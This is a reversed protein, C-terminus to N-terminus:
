PAEAKLSAGQPVLGDEVFRWIAVALKRALAIVGIKRSRGSGAGFTSRYWQSLASEPQYRLWCWALEVLLRRAFRNGAKSIGQDHKVAGSAYPSPALGLFSALCKRNAFQRHFVESVLLVASLRGIGKLTAIRHVKDVNPLGLTGDKLGDELQRDLDRIHAHVLELREFERALEAALFKGLPQDDATRIVQLWKRWDGGWIAKVERIGHLNLLARIRNVHRTREASLQLRERDLRKADEEEPTPVRVERCVTRDGQDFSRFMRVMSEADLRDTKARRSRRNVLFSTSDLVSTRIGRKRLFRALWFGDYGAEFCVVIETPRQCMQEASARTTELMGVLAATDGGRLQRLKVRDSSPSLVAVLWTSKSLEIAAYVSVSSKANENM